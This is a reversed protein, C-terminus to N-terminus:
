FHDVGVEEPNTEQKKAGRPKKNTDKTDNMDREDKSGKRM